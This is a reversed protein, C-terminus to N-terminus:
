PQDVADSRKPILDKFLSDLGNKFDMLALLLCIGFRRRRRRCRLGGVSAFRLGSRAAAAAAAAGSSVLGGFCVGATRLEELKKKKKRKSKM